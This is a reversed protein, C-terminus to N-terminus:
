WVFDDPLDSPPAPPEAGGNTKKIPAQKGAKPTNGPGKPTGDEKRSISKLYNNAEKLFSEFDVEGRQLKGTIGAPLVYNFVHNNIQLHAPSNSNYEALVAERRAIEVEKAIESSISKAHEAEIANIQQRWAEPNTKSLLELEQQKELPIEVQVKALYKELATSKTKLAAIEQRSRTYEPLLAEYQKKYDIEPEQDDQSVEPEQPEEPAPEQAQPEEPQAEPEKAPEQPETISGFDSVQDDINGLSITDVVNDVAGAADMANTVSGTTSDNM